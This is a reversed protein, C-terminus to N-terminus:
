TENSPRRAKYEAEAFAAVDALSRSGKSVLTAAIPSLTWRVARHNPIRRLQTFPIPHGSQRPRGLHQSKGISYQGALPERQCASVLISLSFETIVWAGGVQRRESRNEIRVINSTTVDASGPNSKRVSGSHHM